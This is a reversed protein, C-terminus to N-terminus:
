KLNALILDAFNELEHAYLETTDSGALTGGVIVVVLVNGKRAVLVSQALFSKAIFLSRSEDADAKVALQQVIPEAAAATEPPFELLSSIQPESSFVEFSFKAKKVSEYVSVVVGLKGPLGTNAFDPCLFTARHADFGSESMSGSEAPQFRCRAPMDSQSPVLDKARLAKPTTTTTPLPLPTPTQTPQPTNTPLPTSTGVITATAPPFTATVVIVRETACGVLYIAAVALLGLKLPSKV